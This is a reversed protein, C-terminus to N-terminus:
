SNVFGLNTYRSVLMPIWRSEKPEFSHQFLRHVNSAPPGLSDSLTRVDVDIVLNQVYDFNDFRLGDVLSIGAGGVGIIMARLGPSDDSNSNISPELFNEQIM